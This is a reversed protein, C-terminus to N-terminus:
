LSCTICSFSSAASTGTGVVVVVVAVVVVVFVVVLAPVVVQVVVVVEGAVALRISGIPQPLIPGSIASLSRILCEIIGVSSRM